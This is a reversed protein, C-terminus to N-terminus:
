GAGHSRREATVPDSTATGAPLPDVVATVVM